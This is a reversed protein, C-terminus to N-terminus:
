YLIMIIVASMIEKSKRQRSCLITISICYDRKKTAILLRHKIKIKIQHVM